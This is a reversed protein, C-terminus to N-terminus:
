KNNDKRKCENARSLTSSIEAAFLPNNYKLILYDQYIQSLINDLYDAGEWDVQCVLEPEILLAMKFQAVAQEKDGLERYLSGLDSYHEQYCAGYKDLNIAEKFARLASTYMKKQRYLQGQRTYYFAYDKKFALAQKYAEIAEDTLGKANKIEASLEYFKPNIPMFRKAQTMFRAAKDLEGSEFSKLALFSKKEAIVPSIVFGISFLLIIFLIVFFKGPKFEYIIMNNFNTINGISIILGILIWFFAPLITLHFTMALIGQIIVTIFAAFIGQLLGSEYRDSSIHKNLKVFYVAVSSL